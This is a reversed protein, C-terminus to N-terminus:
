ILSTKHRLNVVSGATLVSDPSLRIAVECYLSLRQGLEALIFSLVRLQACFDRAFHTKRKGNLLEM